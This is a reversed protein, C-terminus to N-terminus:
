NNLFFKFERNSLDINNRKLFDLLDIKNDISDLKKLIDENIM